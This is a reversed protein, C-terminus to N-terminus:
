EAISLHTRMFSSPVTSRARALVGAKQLDPLRIAALADRIVDNVVDWCGHAPCSDRSDCDASSAGEVCSTLAIPGEIAVVVDAVSIQELARSLQYGGRPGRHSVVLGGAVMAKLVKAVTPEPLGTSAAICPATQVEDESSLRILVVVAYDALKSLKLMLQWGKLRVM